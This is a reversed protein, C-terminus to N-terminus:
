QGQLCNWDPVSSTQSDYIVAINSPTGATLTLTTASTVANNAANQCTVGPVVLVIWPFPSQNAPLASIAGLAQVGAGSEDYLYWGATLATGVTGPPNAVNTFNSTNGLKSLTGVNNYIDQLHAASSPVLGNNNSSWTSAAAAIHTADQKAASNAQSRQLGPVALLVVAMILGAIALVILVEIITFGNSNKTINKKM